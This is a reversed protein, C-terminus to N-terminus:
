HRKKTLIKLPQKAGVHAHPKDIIRLSSNSDKKAILINLFNQFCVHVLQELINITQTHVFPTKLPLTTEITNQKPQVFPL